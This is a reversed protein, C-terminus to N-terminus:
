EKGCECVLHLFYYKTETKKLINVQFHRFGSILQSINRSRHYFFIPISNSSILM